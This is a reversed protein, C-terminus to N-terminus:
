WSRTPSPTFDANARYRVVYTYHVNSGCQPNVSLRIMFGDGIHLNNYNGQASGSWLNVKQSTGFSEIKHSSLKDGAMVVWRSLDYYGGQDYGRHSGYVTIDIFTGYHSNRITGIDVYKTPDTCASWNGPGQITGSFERVYESTQTVKAAADVKFTPGVDLTATPSLQGIGVNGNSLITLKTSGNYNRIGAHPNPDTGEHYGIDLFTSNVGATGIAWHKHTTSSGSDYSGLMLTPGHNVNAVQSMLVVQPYQGTLGLSPRDNGDVMIPNTGVATGAIHLKGLPTTTGLGLNGTPGLAMVPANNIRWEAATGSTKSQAMPGVIANMESDWAGLNTVIRSGGQLWLEDSHVSGHPDNFVGLTMRLDETTNTLTQESDDQVLLFGRDSGENVKSHWNMLMHGDPTTHHFNAITGEATQEFTGVLDLTASPSAAGIGVSATTTVTGTGDTWRSTGSPGAPGQPGQPGQAGQPGQPGQVGQPGQPGAPGVLGTPDGVWQGTADIVLGGGISLGGLLDLRGAPSLRALTGGHEFSLGSALDEALTWMAGDTAADVLRLAGVRVAGALVANAAIEGGDVCGTCALNSAPGGKSASGAYNFAVDDASVGGDQLHTANISGPAIDTAGVCGTCALDPPACEWGNAGYRLSHSVTCTLALTEASRANDAWLSLPTAHLRKRPLEAAGDVATGVWLEQNAAIVDALAAGSPNQGVTLSFLGGQVQVGAFSEAYLATPAAETAYLKLAVAFSGNAPAGGATLLQGEFLITAPAAVAPAAVSLLMIAVLVARKM